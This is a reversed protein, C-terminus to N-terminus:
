PPSYATLDWAEVGQLAWLGVTQEQFKHGQRFPMAEVIARCVCFEEARWVWKVKLVFVM